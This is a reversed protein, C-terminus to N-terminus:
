QHCEIRDRIEEALEYNARDLLAYAVFIKNTPPCHWAYGLLRDACQKGTIHRTFSKLGYLPPMREGIFAVAPHGRFQQEESQPAYRSLQKGLEAQVWKDLTQQRLLVEAMGWRGVTVTETDRTFTLKILASFMQQSTLKFDEPTQCVLGYAAWTVWGGTPHDRITSLVQQATTLLGTDDPPGLVQAIVVRECQKCLWVAGYAQSQARWAFTQLGDKHMKRRSIVQMDRDITLEQKDRAVRKKISSLYNDVTQNLDVFGPAQKWKIELRPMDQDDARLYGEKESSSFSTLAWDEPVWVTIGEWGLIHQGHKDATM